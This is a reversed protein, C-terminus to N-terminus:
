AIRSTAATGESAAVLVGGPREIAAVLDAAAASADCQAGDTPPPAFSVLLDEAGIVEGEILAFMEAIRPEDRSATELRRRLYFNANRVAAFRNRLGHRLFSLVEEALMVRGLASVSSGPGALM